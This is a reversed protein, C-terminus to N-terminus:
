QRDISAPTIAVKETGPNGSAGSKMLSLYFDELTQEQPSIEFVSINNQVLCRVIRDTQTRESLTILGDDRHNVILKEARLLTVAAGFDNVRLRVWTETQSISSLAGEFVKKGKNMVAIRSCLQEVENLLHSSLLITLGMEKHLRQITLRMEHIGEPDLGDSPEDLILLEPKPLLAQALALRTRMGHSYTKVKSKERGSLGVWEIVERIRKPSTPATYHTLIELNRWGSLYDYFVPTEFIAGVKQLALQRHKTVDHGCVRVEGETPWVQGLMMGIATSKGAGNHGLLGFIEGAPVELDLNKVAEHRGFVKRIGTLRIM